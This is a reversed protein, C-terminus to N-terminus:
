LTHGSPCPPEATRDNDEKINIEEIIEKDRRESETPTGKITIYRIGLAILNVADVYTMILTLNIPLFQLVVTHYLLAGHTEHHDLGGLTGTLNILVEHM